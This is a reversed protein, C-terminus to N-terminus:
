VRTAYMAIKCTTGGGRRRLFGNRGKQPGLAPNPVSEYTEDAEAMVGQNPGAQSAKTRLNRLHGRGRPTRRLHVRLDRHRLRHM